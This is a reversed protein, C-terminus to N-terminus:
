AATEVSFAKDFAEKKALLNKHAKVREAQAQDFARQAEELARRSESLDEDALGLYTKADKLENFLREM